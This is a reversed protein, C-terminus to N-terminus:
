SPIVVIQRPQYIKSPSASTYASMDSQGYNLQELGRVGDLAPRNVTKLGIVGSSISVIKVEQGSSANNIFCTAGVYFGTSDGVTVFGTTTGNVTIAASIEAAEKGTGM